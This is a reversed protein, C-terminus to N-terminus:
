RRVPVYEGFIDKMTTHIEGVTAYARVADLMVPVINVNSDKAKKAAVKRLDKLCREVKDNDREKKLKKIRRLQRAEDKPDVQFIDMPPENDVKYKNIGIIVKKGSEVDKTFNYLGKEMERFYLGAELAGAPGGKDDVEKLWYRAEEEIDSTMKEVYYSGALPDVTNEIGCENLLIYKIYSAVRTSEETPLALAEDHSCTYMQEVGTLLGTLVAMTMRAFNNLPQQALMRVNGCGITIRLGLVAPDDCKYREKVLRAWLRRTARYKAVEEFLDIDSHMHLDIKPMFDGIELGRKLATDIYTFAHALGFAIEQPASVWGSRLHTTNVYMPIWQWYWKDKYNRCIYEIVDVAMEIAIPMPFIYTGRGTYERIPDNQIRFRRIDSPDIGQREALALTTCLIYPGISDGVFSIGTKALPIGKFTREADDLSALAVGVKGVEGRSLPDDSDLGIQTPLDLAATITGAGKSVLARYRENSSEGSGYGTIYDQPFEFSRYGNPTRGRTFPFQGPFGVDRLYDIDKVDEPTYLPNVPKGSTTKFPRKLEPTKKLSPKYVKEEWEKRAKEISM